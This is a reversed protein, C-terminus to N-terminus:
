GSAPDTGDLESVTCGSDQLKWLSLDVTETPKGMM